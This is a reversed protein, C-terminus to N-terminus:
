PNQPTKSPGGPEGTPGPQSVPGADDGQEPPPTRTEGPQNDEEQDQKEEDPNKEVTGGQAAESMGRAMLIATRANVLDEEIEDFDVVETGSLHRGLHLHAEGAWGWAEQLFDRATTPPTDDEDIHPPEWVEVPETFGAEEDATRKLREAETEMSM